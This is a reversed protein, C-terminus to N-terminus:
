PRTDLGEAYGRAVDIMEGHTLWRNSTFEDYLEGFAYVHYHYAGGYNWAPSVYVDM